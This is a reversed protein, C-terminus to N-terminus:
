PKEATGLTGPESVLRNYALGLGVHVLYVQSAPQPQFLSLSHSFNISVLVRKRNLAWSNVLLGHKYPRLCM